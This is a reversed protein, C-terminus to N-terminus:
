VSYVRCSQLVCFVFGYSPLFCFFSVLRLTEGLLVMKMLILLKLIM